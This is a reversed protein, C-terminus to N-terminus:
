PLWPGLVQDVTYSLSAPDLRPTEGRDAFDSRVALRARDLRGAILTALRPRLSPADALMDEIEGRERRIASRWDAYPTISPSVALKILPELIAQIHSTLNRVQSRGLAEVEEALHAWDLTESIAEGAALQRLLASQHEAWAVFDTDYDTSAVSDSSM